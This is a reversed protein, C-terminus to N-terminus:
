FLVSFEANALWSAVLQDGNVNRSVPLYLMGTVQVSSGLSQQLGPTLYLNEYGSNANGSAADGGGSDHGRITVNAQLLPTL